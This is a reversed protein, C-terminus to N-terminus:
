YIRKEINCHSSLRLVNKKSRGNEHAATLKVVPQLQKHDGILVVHESLSVAVITDPEHAIDCEDVIM